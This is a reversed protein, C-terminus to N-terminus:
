SPRVPRRLRRLLERVQYYALLVLATGFILGVPWLVSREPLIEPKTKEPLATEAKLQSEYAEQVLRRHERLAPSEYRRSWVCQDLTKSAAELKGGANYLEGLLWL